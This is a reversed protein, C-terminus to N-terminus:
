VVITEDANTSNGRYFIPKYFTQGVLDNFTFSFLILNIQSSPYSGWDYSSNSHTMTKGSEFKTCLETKFTALTSSWGRFVWNTKDLNTNVTGTVGFIDSGMFNAFQPILKYAGVSTYPPVVINANDQSAIGPFYIYDPTTDALLNTGFLIYSPNGSAAIRFDM